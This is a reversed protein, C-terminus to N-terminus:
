LLTEFSIVVFWQQYVVNSLGKLQKSCIQALGKTVLVAAEIRFFKVTIRSLMSQSTVSIVVSRPVSNIPFRCSKLSLFM